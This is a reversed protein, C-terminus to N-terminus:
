CYALNGASSPSPCRAAAPPGPNNLNKQITATESSSLRKNLLQFHRDFTHPWCCFWSRFFFFFHQFFMSFSPFVIWVAGLLIWSLSNIVTIPLGTTASSLGCGVLAISMTVIIYYKGWLLCFVFVCKGSFWFVSEEWSDNLWHPSTIAATYCVCCRLICRCVCVCDSPRFLIGFLSEHTKEWLKFVRLTSAKYSWEL